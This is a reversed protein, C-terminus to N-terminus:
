NSTQSLEEELMKLLDETSKSFLKHTYRLGPAITGLQLYLSSTLQTKGTNLAETYQNVVKNNERYTEMLVELLNYTKVIERQLDSNKIQGILNANSSYIISYNQSVPLVNYYFTVKKEEFEKWSHKISPSNFENYIANLEEYIAQLVGQIIEQQREKDRQEQGQLTERVGQRSSYATIIGGIVAAVLAGIASVLVEM